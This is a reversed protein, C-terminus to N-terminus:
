GRTEQDGPTVPLQGTRIRVTEEAQPGMPLAHKWAARWWKHIDDLILYLAPILFLTIVTAFLIGFALSAAMPIVLQAQLSTEFIAIPALGLFTTLSTLLIARFRTKAAKRVAQELAVGTARERNVFDVLILSDNVVVGALAIIGFYSTMSVPIGLILHGLLAGITGFPIVSMIILPQAYSRLPIAMLAYILFVAFLGGRVLDQQIEVQQQSAGSLKSRVGPFHALVQPLEKSMIDDQIKKPEYKEKDVEASVRISRERDFRRIFTPSETLEVEAVSHFPV